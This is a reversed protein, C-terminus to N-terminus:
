NTAKHCRFQHDGRATISPFCTPFRPCCHPPASDEPCCTQLSRSGPWCKIEKPVAVLLMRVADVGFRSLQKPLPFNQVACLIVIVCTIGLPSNAPSSAPTPSASPHGNIMWEYDSLQGDLIDVLHPVIRNLYDEVTDDFNFGVDIDGQSNLVLGHDVEPDAM